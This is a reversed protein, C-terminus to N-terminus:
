GAGLVPVLRRRRGDRGYLEVTQAESGTSSEADVLDGGLDALPREEIGANVDNKRLREMALEYSSKLAKDDAMRAM